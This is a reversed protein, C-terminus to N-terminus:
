LINIGTIVQIIQVIFFASIVILLGLLASTIHSQAAQIKVPDGLSSMLQYGTLALRLFFYLGALPIAYLLFRGALLAPLNPYTATPFITSPSPINLQALLM